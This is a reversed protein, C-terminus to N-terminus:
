TLFASFGVPGVIGFDNTMRVPLVVESGAEDTRACNIISTRLIISGLVAVRSRTNESIQLSIEPFVHM